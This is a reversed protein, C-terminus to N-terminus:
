KLKGFTYTLPPSPRVGDPLPQGNYNVTNEQSSQWPTTVNDSEEFDETYTSEKHKDTSIVPKIRVAVQIANNTSMSVNFLFPNSPLIYISMLRLSGEEIYGVWGSRGDFFSPLFGVENRAKIM